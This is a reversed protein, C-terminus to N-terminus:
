RLRMARQDLSLAQAITETPGHQNALAARIYAATDTLREDEPPVQPVYHLDYIGRPKDGAQRDLYDLAAFVKIVSGLNVGAIFAVVDAPVVRFEKKREDSKIPLTSRRGDPRMDFCREFDNIM